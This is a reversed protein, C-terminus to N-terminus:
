FITMITAINNSTATARSKMAGDSCQIQVEEVATAMAATQATTARSTTQTTAAHNRSNSNDAKLM